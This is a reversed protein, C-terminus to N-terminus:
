PAAFRRWLADLGASEADGPHFVFRYRFRARGDRPIVLDAAGPYLLALTDNVIFRFYKQNAKVDLGSSTEYYKDYRISSIRNPLHGAM